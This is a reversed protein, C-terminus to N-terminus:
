ILRFGTRRKILWHWLCENVTPFQWKFKNRIEHKTNRIEHNPGGQRSKNSESQRDPRKIMMYRLCFGSGLRDPGPIESKFQHAKIGGGKLPVAGSVSAIAGIWKM